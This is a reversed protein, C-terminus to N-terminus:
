LTPRDRGLTLRQWQLTAVLAPVRAAFAERNTRCLPVGASEWLVRAASQPTLAEIASERSADRTLLVARTLQASAPRARAVADYALEFKGDAGARWPAVRAGARLRGLGAADLRVGYEGSWCFVHRTAPELWAFDEALPLWGDDVAALLTTSKGVGSPGMLATACGDRVVVAAHLPVVGRARLAECFAVHLALLTEPEVRMNGSWVRIRARRDFLRLSVGRDDDGTSWWREAHRIWTLNAGDLPTTQSVEPPHTERRPARLCHAVDIRYSPTVVIPCTQEWQRRIWRELAGPVDIARCSAGLVPFDVRRHQPM